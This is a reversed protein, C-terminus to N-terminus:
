PQVDKKGVEQNSAWPRYVQEHWPLYWRLLSRVQVQLIEVVDDGRSFYEALELPIEWEDHRAEETYPQQALHEFKNRYNNIGYLHELMSGRWIFEEWKQGLAMNKKEVYTRKGEDSKFRREIVQKIATNLNDGYQCTGLQKARYDGDNMLIRCAILKAAQCRDKTSAGSSHLTQYEAVIDLQLRILDELLPDRNLKAVIHGLGSKLSEKHVVGILTGEFGTRFKQDPIGTLDYQGSVIVVRTKRAGPRNLETHIWELLEYGVNNDIRSGEGSLPISLDLFVLDAEDRHTTIEERAALASKAVGLCHAFGLDLLAEQLTRAEQDHDEVIFFNLDGM